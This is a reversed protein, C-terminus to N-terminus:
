SALVDLVHFIFYLSYMSKDSNIFIKKSVRNMCLLEEDIIFIIIIIIIITIIIGIFINKDLFYPIAKLQCKPIGPPIIRGNALSGVLWVGIMGVTIIIIITMIMSVTIITIIIAIITLIITIIM